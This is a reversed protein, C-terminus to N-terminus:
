AMDTSISGGSCSSNLRVRRGGLGSCRETTCVSVNGPTPGKVCCTARYKFTRFVFSVATAYLTFVVAGLLYRSRIEREFYIINVGCNSRGVSCHVFQVLGPLRLVLYLGDDQPCPILLPCNKQLCHFDINRWIHFAFIFKEKLWCLDVVFGCLCTERVEYGEGESVKASLSWTPVFRSLHWPLSFPLLSSEAFSFWIHIPDEERCLHHTRFCPLGM